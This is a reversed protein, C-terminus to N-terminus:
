DGHKINTKSREWITVSYLGEKQPSETYKTTAYKADPTIWFAFKLKGNHNIFGIFSPSNISIWRVVKIVNNDKEQFKAIAQNSNLWYRSNDKFVIIDGCKLYKKKIM